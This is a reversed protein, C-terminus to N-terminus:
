LIFHERHVDFKSFRSSARYCAKEVDNVMSEPGCVAITWNGQSAMRKMWTNYDPRGSEFGRQVKGASRTVYVTIELRMGFVTKLEILEEAFWSYHEASQISWILHIHQIQPSGVLGGLQSILPTIGIGGACFAIRVCHSLELPRGYPGEVRMTFEPDIRHTSGTISKPAHMGSVLKQTFNGSSRIHITPQELVHSSISFPHWVKGITPFQVWVYQGPKYAFRPSSFRVRLVNGTLVTADNVSVKYSFSKRLDLAKEVFRAVVFPLTYMAILPQHAMGAILFVLYLFHTYYFVEFQRRRFISHSFLTIALLAAFSVNAARLSKTNVPDGNALFVLGHFLLLATITRGFMRHINITATFDTKPVRFTKLTLLLAGPLNGIAVSSANVSREQINTSPLLAFLLVNMAIYLGVRCHARFQPPIIGLPLYLMILLTATLVLTSIWPGPTSHPLVGIVAPLELVM